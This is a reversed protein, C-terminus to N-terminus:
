ETKSEVSKSSEAAKAADAIRSKLDDLGARFDSVSAAVRTANDAARLSDVPITGVEKLLDLAELQILTRLSFDRFDHHLDTDEYIETRTISTVLGNTLYNENVQRLKPLTVIPPVNVRSRPASISKFFM